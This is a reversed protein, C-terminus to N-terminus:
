PRAARTELYYQTRGGSAYSQTRWSQTIYKVHPLNMAALVTDAPPIDKGPRRPLAAERDFYPSTIAIRGSREERLEWGKPRWTEQWDCYDPFQDVIRRLDKTHRAPLAEIAHLTADAIPTGDSIFGLMLRAAQTRAHPDLFRKWMYDKFAGPDLCPAAM